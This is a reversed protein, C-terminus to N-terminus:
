HLHPAEKYGLDRQQSDHLAPLHLYGQQDPMSVDRRMQGVSLIHAFRHRTLSVPAALQWIQLFHYAPLPHRHLM